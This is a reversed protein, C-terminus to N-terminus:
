EAGLGGFYTLVADIPGTFGYQEGLWAILEKDHVKAAKGANAAAALPRAPDAINRPNLYRARVAAFDASGTMMFIDADPRRNGPVIAGFSTLSAKDEM